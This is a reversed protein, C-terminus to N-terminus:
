TSLALRSCFGAKMWHPDRWQPWLVYARQDPLQQRLLDVAHPLSPELAIERWGLDHAQASFRRPPLPLPLRGSWSSLVLTDRSPSRRVLANLDGSFTDDLVIFVQSADASAQADIAVVTARLDLLTKSGHWAIGRAQPNSSCCLGTSYPFRRSVSAHRNGFLAIM